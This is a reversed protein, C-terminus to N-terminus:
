KRLLTARLRDQAEQGMENAMRAFYAGNDTIDKNLLDKPSGFEVIEGADLVLIKDYDIVTELRHAIALVTSNAFLGGEARIAKQILYDTKVDIASTAEDLVILRTNRLIARALCIM